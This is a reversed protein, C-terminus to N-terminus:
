GRRGTRPNFPAQANQRAVVEPNFGPTIGPNQIVQETTSTLIPAPSSQVVPEISVPVPQSVETAPIQAVVPEQEVLATRQKAKFAAREAIFAPDPPTTTPAPATFTPEPVFVERVQGPLRVSIPPSINTVGGTEFRQPGSGPPTAVRAGGLDQRVSRAAITACSGRERIAGGNVNVWNGEETKYYGDIALQSCSDNSYVTNRPNGLYYTNAVGFQACASEISNQVPSLALIANYCKPITPLPNVTISVKQTIPNGNADIARALLTINGTSDSTIYKTTSM